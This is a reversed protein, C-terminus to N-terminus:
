VWTLTLGQTLDYNNASCLGPVSRYWCQYHKTQGAVAGGAIHIENPTLGGPYSAVGAVPFVVGLRVIGVAACLHGDGFNIPAGALGNSQFFLGPGPIDTATLVLTDTGSTEDSAIGTSFLIAGGAFASSGCGHGVAGTNGCPCPAGTGDGLCFATTPTDCSTGVESVTFTGTINATASFNGLQITIVQGCTVATSVTSELTSGPTPCLTAGADDNCALNSGTPCGAGPWLAIKTDRTTSTTQNCTTVTLTGNMTATYTYWLDKKVSSSCGTPTGQGETGTTASTTDFPYVGPGALTIPLSCDDGVVKLSVNLTFLGTGTGKDSVRLIVTQGSTLAIGSVCSSTGGCPTGGCDDSCALETGGCASFVALTTDGSSGCTNASLQGTAGATYSYWVDRSSAGGTDCSSSGDNTATSLIGVASSTIAAASACADNAPAAGATVTFVAWAIDFEGDGVLTVAVPGSGDDITADYDVPGTERDASVLADPFDLLLGTTFDEDGNSDSLNNCTNYDSVALYYTGAPFPRIIRSQATAGGPGEDDNHYGPMPNFNSDYVYLETDQTTQGITSITISTGVFTGPVVVPTVTSTGLTATYAATTTTTGGVRYYIEEQKGFGFWYNTRPIAGATSTTQVTSDTTGPVGGSQNVGRISATHGTTTSTTVTLRHKYIGLPLAGTKVRFTDGTADTTLGLTTSTGTSVGTITDGATMTVIGVANAESKQGNPEVEPFNTQAFTSTALLATAFAAFGYTRFKM